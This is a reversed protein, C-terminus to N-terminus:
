VFLALLKTLDFDGSQGYKPLNLNAPPAIAMQQPIQDLQPNRAIMTNSTNQSSSQGGKLFDLVKQTEPHEDSSTSDSPPVGVSAPATSQAPPPVGGTSRDEVQSEPLPTKRKPTFADLIGALLISGATPNNGSPAFMYNKEHGLMGLGIGDFATAM